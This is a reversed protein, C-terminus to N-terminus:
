LYLQCTLRQATTELQEMSNEDYHKLLESQRLSHCRRLTSWDIREMSFALQVSEEYKSQFHSLASVTYSDWLQTNAWDGKCGPLHKIVFWLFLM